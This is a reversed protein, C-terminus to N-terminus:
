QVEEKGLCDAGASSVSVIIIVSFISLAMTHM